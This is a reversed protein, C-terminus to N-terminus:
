IHILSLDLGATPEDLFAIQPNWYIMRCLSLLKLEGGSLNRAGNNLINEKGLKELFDLVDKWLKCNKIKYDLLVNEKFNGYVTSINQMGYYVFDVKYKSDKQPTRLGLIQEVLTTKGCGSPGSIINIKAHKFKEVINFSSETQLKNENKIKASTLYNEVVESHFSLSQSAIKIKSFSPILRLSVGLLLGFTSILNTSNTAINYYCVVSLLVILLYELQVKVIGQSYKLSSLAHTCIKTVKQYRKLVYDATKTFKLLVFNNLADNIAELRDADYNFRDKGLNRLKISKKISNILFLFSFIVIIIALDHDVFFVYCVLLTVVM